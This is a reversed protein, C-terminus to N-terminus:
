DSKAIESLSSWRIIFLDRQTEKKFWWIPRNELREGCHHSKSWEEIESLQEESVTTVDFSIGPLNFPGIKCVKMNAEGNQM